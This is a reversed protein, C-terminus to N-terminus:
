RFWHQFITLQVRLFLSWHFKLRFELMNMWSFANSLITQFIADMKDRGRHTSICSKCSQMFTVWLFHSYRYARVGCFRLCSARLKCLYKTILWSKTETIWTRVVTAGYHVRHRRLDGADRNNAWGNTWACFLSFMLARRWQGKHTSAM